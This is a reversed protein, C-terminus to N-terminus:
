FGPKISTRPQEPQDAAPSPGVQLEDHVTVAGAELADDVATQRARFSPVTGTLTVKGGQVRVAVARALAFPSWAFNQQIRRALDTDAVTPRPATVYWVETAPTLPDTRTSACRVTLSRVRLRDDVRRTGAVRSVDDDAAARQLYTDVTGSLAVRGARVALQIAGSDTLPDKALAERVRRQMARDVVTEATAAVAEGSAPAISASSVDSAELSRTAHRAHVLAALALVASVFSAGNSIVRTM